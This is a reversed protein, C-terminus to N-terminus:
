QFAGTESCIIQRLCCNMMSIFMLMLILEKLVLEIFNGNFLSKEATFETEWVWQSRSIWQLEKEAGAMFPDPILGAAALALHVETPINISDLAISDGSIQWNKNLMQVQLSSGKQCSSILMLLSLAFVFPQGLKIAKFFSNYTQSIRAM